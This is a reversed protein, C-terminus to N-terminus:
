SMVFKYFVNQKLTRFLTFLLVSTFFYWNLRRDLPHVYFFMITQYLMIFFNQKISRVIVIHKRFLSFIVFVKKM